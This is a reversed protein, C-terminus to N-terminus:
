FKVGLEKTIREESYNMLLIETGDKLTIITGWFMSETDPETWWKMSKIGEDLRKLLRYNLYHFVEPKKAM